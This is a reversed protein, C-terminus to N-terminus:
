STIVSVTNETEGDAIQTIAKAPTVAHAEKENGHASEEDKVLPLITRRESTVRWRGAIDLVEAAESPSPFVRFPSM